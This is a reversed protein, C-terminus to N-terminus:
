FYNNTQIESQADLNRPAISTMQGTQLDSSLPQFYAVLKLQSFSSFPMSSLAFSQQPIVHLLM